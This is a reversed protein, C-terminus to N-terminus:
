PAGSSTSSTALMGLGCGAALWGRMLHWDLPNVGAAKVEVLLQNAAPQPKPVSAVELVEDPAGYCRFLVAQMNDASTDAQLPPPCDATHSMVLALVVAFVAVLGVLGLLIRRIWKM